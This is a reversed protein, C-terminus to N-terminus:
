GVIGFSTGADPIGGAGPRYLTATGQGADVAAWTLSYLAGKSTAPEKSYPVGVYLTNAGSRLSTGLYDRATAVGPLLSGSAARSLIKDASGLSADLPKFVQVVGADKAAGVDRGPVAVALRATAPGTVVSADRNALTVRQGFFDGSAPDGEVDAVTADITALTSVAGTPQIRVVSVMGASPVEGVSEGPVGVALMADSNYTEDAPRYNDMSVSTGFQDGAEATGPMGDSAGAQDLGVLPKPCGNELTHSFVTAMGAFEQTGIAEGPSGVAFYRHTGTLSSGMRDYAEVAGPVSPTDQTIGCVTSGQLYEVAGAEPRVVNDSTLDEGPVGIALWPQGSAATGSALSYGFLDGAETLAGANIVHQTWNDIRAGPTGLGTASGHYVYVAGADLQNVGDVVVDEYPVGVVLDACADGDADHVAWSFGFQDGREPAAADEPLAQSIEATGKGGGYIVRVLGAQPAGDVTAQPDAVVVDFLGDGNFDQGAGACAAAPAAVPQAHAGGPVAAVIVAMGVCAGVAKGFVRVGWGSDM